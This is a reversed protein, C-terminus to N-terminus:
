RDYRLKYAKKIITVSGDRIASYSRLLVKYGGKMDQKQKNKSYVYFDEVDYRQAVKLLSEYDHKSSIHLEPHKTITSKETSALNNIGRIISNDVKYFLNKLQSKTIRVM